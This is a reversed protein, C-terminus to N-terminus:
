VILEFSDDFSLDDLILDDFSLDDLILDDFSEVRIM